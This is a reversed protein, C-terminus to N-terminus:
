RVEEGERKGRPITGRDYHPHAPELIKQLFESKGETYAPRDGHFQRALEEKVRGYEAALQSDARLIERLYLHRKLELADQCCVYLHHDLWKRKEATWPTTVSSRQFAWRGPIGKDGEPRYGLQQLKLSVEQLLNHDIIIIDLDIIPKSQLGPVATSGVHEIDQILPALAKKLVRSLALFEQPWAPDYPFIKVPDSKKLPM